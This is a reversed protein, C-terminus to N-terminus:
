FDVFVLLILMSFCFVLYSLYFNGKNVTNKYEGSLFKATIRTDTQCTRWGTRGERESYNQCSKEHWSQDISRVRRNSHCFVPRDKAAKTSLKFHHEFQFALCIDVYVQYAAIGSIQYNKPMSDLLRFLNLAKVNHCYLIGFLEREAPMFKCQGYHLVATSHFCQHSKLGM